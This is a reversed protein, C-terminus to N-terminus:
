RGLTCVQAKIARRSCDSSIFGATILYGVKCSAFGDRRRVYFTLFEYSLLHNDAYIIGKAPKPNPLNKIASVSALKLRYIDSRDIYVAVIGGAIKRDRTAKAAALETIKGSISINYTPSKSARTSRQASV